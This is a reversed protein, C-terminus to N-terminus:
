SNILKKKMLDLVKLCFSKLEDEKDKTQIYDFLLHWIEEYGLSRAAGSKKGYLVKYNLKLEAWNIGFKDGDNIFKNKWEDDFVNMLGASVPCTTVNPKNKYNFEWKGNESFADIIEDFKFYTRDSVKGTRNSRKFFLKELIERKIEVPIAEFKSSTGSERWQINNIFSLARFEEYAPHSIPIRPKGKELTCTGVLGKQTRLPRVFYIAKYLKDILEEQLGQNKCIHYFEKEFEIRQIVGSNRIRRNENELGYQLIQSAHWDPHKERITKLYENEGYTSKGNKRSTKFGRRQVLHYLSRGIKFLKNEDNLQTAEILNKRLLYPNEYEPKHKYEESRTKGIIKFDMALWSHFGLSSPYVRGKNKGEQWNGVSWLRLEEESIPCMGNQQLVKLTAWKRYRKANYLRRKSRNKRREAALSFEGSKGEGVGKKFIVVGYDVIQDDELVDTDRIAWGISNTGLDLGLINGM